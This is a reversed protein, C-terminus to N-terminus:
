YIWENANFRQRFDEVFERDIRVSLTEYGDFFFPINFAHCYRYMAENVSAHKIDFTLTERDSTCDFNVDEEPFSTGNEENYGAVSTEPVYSDGDPCFGGKCLLEHLTDGNGQLVKEIEERNGHLMGGLRMWVSKNESDM